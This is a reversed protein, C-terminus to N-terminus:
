KTWLPILRGLISKRTVPGFYRGDFSARANRMLPFFEEHGLRRCGTWSPLPRRQRDMALRTAVEDGNILIARGVACITDGSRAAIQKVMPVNLPLYGRRAALERVTVPTRILAFDGTQPVADVRLYLGTPASASANWVLRPGLFATSLLLMLGIGAIGLTARNQHGRRGTGDAIQLM